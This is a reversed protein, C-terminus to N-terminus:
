TSKIDEHRQVEGPELIIMHNEIFTVADLIDLRTTELPQPDYPTLVPQKEPSTPLGESARHVCRRAHRRDNETHTELVTSTWVQGAGTKQSVLSKPQISKGALCKWGVIRCIAM